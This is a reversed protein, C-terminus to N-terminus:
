PEKSRPPSPPPLLQLFPLDAPVLDGGAYVVVMQGRVAPTSDVDGGTAVQSRVEGDTAGFAYLTDDRSGVLVTDGHVVPSSRM